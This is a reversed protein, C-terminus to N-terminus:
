CCDCYKRNEKIYKSQLNGYTLDNYIKDCDLCKIIFCKKKSGIEVNEKISEIKMNIKALETNNKDVSNKKIM